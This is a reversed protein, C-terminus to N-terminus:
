DGVVVIRTTEDAMKKTNADIHKQRELIAKQIKNEEKVPRILFKAAEATGLELGEQPTRAGTLDASKKKKPDDLFPDFGFRKQDEAISTSNWADAFKQMNEQMAESKKVDESKIFDDEGLQKADELVKILKESANVIELFGKGEKAMAAVEKSIKAFGKDTLGLVDQVVDGKQKQKIRDRFSEVMAAVNALAQEAIDAGTGIGKLSENFEDAGDAGDKTAKAVEETKFILRGLLPFINLTIVEDYHELVDLFGAAAPTAVSKLKDGTKDLIDNWRNMNRTSEAIESNANKMAGEHFTKKLEEAFKPLFDKSALDGKDLLKNLESTTIGMSKAALKFAGPLHEGMQQRLEESSVTGKSAIQSLARLLGGTRQADLGLAASAEATATFLDKTQKLTLLGKTSAALQSFGKAAQLTDIGLRKAEQRVFEIQQAGSIGFVTNMSLEIREFQRSINIAEKGIAIIRSIAFAAGVQKVLRNLSQDLLGTEKKVKKLFTELPLIIRATKEESEEEKESGPGEDGIINGKANM